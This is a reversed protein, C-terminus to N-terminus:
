KIMALLDKCSTALWPPMLIETNDQNILIGGAKPKSSGTM